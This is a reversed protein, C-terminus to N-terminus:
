DEGLSGCLHHIDPPKQSTKKFWRLGGMVWWDLLRAITGIVATRGFSFEPGKLASHAGIFLRL